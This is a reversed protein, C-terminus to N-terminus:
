GSSFPRLTRECVAYRLTAGAIHGCAIEMVLDDFHAATHRFIARVLRCRKLGAAFFWVMKRGDKHMEEGAQSMREEFTDHLDV